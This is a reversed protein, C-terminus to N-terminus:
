SEFEQLMRALDEDRTNWNDDLKTACAILQCLRLNPYRAWVALVQEMIKRQHQYTRTM